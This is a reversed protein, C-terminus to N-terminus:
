KIEKRFAESCDKFEQGDIMQAAQEQIAQSSLAFEDRASYKCQLVFWLRIVNLIVSVCSQM